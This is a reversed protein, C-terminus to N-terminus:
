VSKIKEVRSNDMSIYDVKVQNCYLPPLLFMAPKKQSWPQSFYHHPQHPSQQIHLYKKAFWQKIISSSVLLYTYFSCQFCTGLNIHGQGDTMMLWTNGTFHGHDRFRPWPPWASTTGRAVAPGPWWIKWAAAWDSWWQWCNVNSWTMFATATKLIDRPWVFIYRFIWWSRFIYQCISNLSM